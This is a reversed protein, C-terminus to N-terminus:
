GIPRREGAAEAVLVVHESMPEAGGGKNAAILLERPLDRTPV